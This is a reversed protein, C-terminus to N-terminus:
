LSAIAAGAGEAAFLGLAVSAGTSPLPDSGETGRAQNEPLLLPPPRDPHDRFVSDRKVPVLPEFGEQEVPPDTKRARKSVALQRGLALKLM